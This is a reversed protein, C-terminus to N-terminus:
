KAEESCPSGLKRPSPHLDSPGAWPFCQVRHRTWPFCWPPTAASCTARPHHGHGNAEQGRSWDLCLADCPLPEISTQSMSPVPLQLALQGRDTEERLNCGASSTPTVRLSFSCGWCGPQPPGEKVGAPCPPPSCPPPGPPGQQRMEASKEGARAGRSGASQSVSAEAGM